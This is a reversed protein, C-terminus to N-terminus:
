FFMQLDFQAYKFKEIDSGNVMESASFTMKLPLFFDGSFYSDITSYTLGLTLTQSQAGSAVSLNGYNYDQKDGRYYDRSSSSHLLQGFVETNKFPKTYAGVLIEFADGKKFEVEEKRDSIPMDGVLRVEKRTPLYHKFLAAASITLEENFIPFDHISEIFPAYTGAGFAFDNIIDPDDQRGTPLDIGWRLGNRSWNNEFYNFHLFMRADGIDNAEWDGLPKYGMENVFYHQLVEATVKPAKDLLQALIQLEQQREPSATEAETRLKKAENQLAKSQAYEGHLRVRANILPIGVGFMLNDNIGWGFGFIKVHGEVEPTINFTGLELKQSLGPSIEDITSIVKEIKDSAGRLDTFNLAGNMDFSSFRGQNNFEGPVSLSLETFMLAHRGKPLIHTRGTAPFADATSAMLSTILIFLIDGRM